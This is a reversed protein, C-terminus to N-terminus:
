RGGAGGGWNKQPIPDVAPYGHQIFKVEGGDPGNVQTGYTGDPLKVAYSMGGLENRASAILAKGLRRKYSRVAGNSLTVITVTSGDPNEVFYTTGGLGNPTEGRIIQDPGLMDTVSQARAGGSAAAALLAVSAFFLPRMSKM